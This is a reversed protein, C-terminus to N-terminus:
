PLHGGRAPPMKGCARLRRLMFGGLGLLLFTVPEPTMFAMEVGGQSSSDGSYIGTVDWRVYRASAPEFEAFTEPYPVSFVEPSDATTHTIDRTAVVVSFDSASSFILQSTTVQAVRYKRQMHYLGAVTVPGAFDFDLYNGLGNQGKYETATNDDFLKGWGYTTDDWGLSGGIGTPDPLETLDAWAGFTQCSM